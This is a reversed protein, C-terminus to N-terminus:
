LILPLADYNQPPDIYKFWSDDKDNNYYDPGNNILDYVKSLVPGYDMSFYRDGTITDDMSGLAFRDSMYLLKILKMYEMPRKHLKLLFAAAQVTKLPNYTFEMNCRWRIIWFYINVVPM